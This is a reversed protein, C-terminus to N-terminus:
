DRKAKIAAAVQEAFSDYDNYVVADGFPFTKESLKMTFNNKTYYARYDDYTNYQPPEDGSINVIFFLTKNPTHMNEEISDNSLTIYKQLNHTSIEEWKTIQRAKNFYPVKDPIVFVQFYQNGNLRINATEGLMNEFYNNSNQSYNSMVYKVAIGAVPKGNDSITIDVKKDIYRGKITGEKGEGYDLSAITYNGGDANLRSAINEAIAGHLIKLKENSRASTNLYKLFSKKLVELFRTNDMKVRNRESYTYNLYRQLDKSSFTYYGGSKYKGLMEAYGTFNDNFLSRLEDLGVDTLIYLGGYVGTGPACPTLKIDAASRILANVAYKNRGVDNLGQSRGFEYWAAGRDLSRAELKQRHAEFHRKIAPVEALTEYPILKGDNDYPFLCKTLHGTSAKVIPITYDDFDFDRIFFNDLLTAFGNKVEFTLRETGNPHVKQLANLHKPEGFNFAGDFCFDDCKYDSIKVPERLQEDYEYYEVCDRKGQKCLVMIATYATADFPQFHKLDVIKRIQRGAILQERMTKGAVSNFLSSPTIYGLIGHDKLMSLGLEYFVIYLDTMGSKAFRYQKIVDYNDLLNHVRVYPPNGLVFDMRGDYQHSTLADACNIDWAIDAVGFEAAVASVNARCKDCEAADIEIGHIYRGLDRRIQKPSRNARLAEACYRRVMEVLFAGDGCSNDIAHKGLIRNGSYDVLDLINQVLFQPTYYRGNAKKNTINNQTVKM